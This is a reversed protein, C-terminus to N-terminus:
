KKGLFSANIKGKRKKDFDQFSDSVNSTTSKVADWWGGITDGAADMAGYIAGGGINTDGTAQPATSGGSVMIDEWQGTASNYQKFGVDGGFDKVYPSGTSGGGGSTSFKKRQSLTDSLSGYEKELEKLYEKKSMGKPRSSSTTGYAAFLQDYDGQKRAKEEAERAKEEQNQLEDNYKGVASEFTDAFTIGANPTTLMLQEIKSREREIDGFEIGAQSQAASLVDTYGQLQNTLADTAKGRQGVLKSMSIADDVDIDVNRLKSQTDTVNTTAEPIGYKLNISERIGALDTPRTADSTVNTPNYGGVISNYEDPNVNKGYDGWASQPVGAKNLKSEYTGQAYGHKDEFGM